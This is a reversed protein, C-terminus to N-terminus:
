KCYRAEASISVPASATPVSSRLAFNFLKHLIANNDLNEKHEETAVAGRM